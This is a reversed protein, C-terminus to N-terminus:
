VRPVGAIGVLGIGWLAVQRQLSQSWTELNRLITWAWPLKRRDPLNSTHTFRKGLLKRRIEGRTSPAVLM